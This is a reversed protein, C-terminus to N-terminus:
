PNGSGGSGESNLQRRCLVDIKVHLGHGGFLKLISQWFRTKPSGKPKWIAWLSSVSPGRVHVLFCKCLIHFFNRFSRWFAHPFRPFVCRKALRIGSVAGLPASVGLICLNEIFLDFKAHFVYRKKLNRHKLQPTVNGFFCVMSTGGESRLVVM